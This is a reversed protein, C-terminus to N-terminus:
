KVTLIFIRDIRRCKELFTPKACYDFRAKVDTCIKKKAETIKYRVLKMVPQTKRIDKNAQTQRSDFRKNQNKFQNSYQLM